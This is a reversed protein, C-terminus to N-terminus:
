KYIKQKLTATSTKFGKTEIDNNKNDENVIEAKIQIFLDRTNKIISEYKFFTGFIPMDGLVPVKYISNNVTTKKLGGIFVVGGDELTVISTLKNKQAAGLADEETADGLTNTSKSSLFSSVESTIELTIKDKEGDGDRIIPTVNLVTGAEKFLPETTTNGDSDTSSTTGVKLEASVNLNATKGNLTVVSPVANVSADDTQKLMNITSSIVNDTNGLYSTFTAIPNGTAVAIQGTIGSSVSDKDQYSWDIGLEQTLTGTIELIQATIRVQKIPKDLEKILNKATEINETSGKLIILNQDKVSIVELSNEDTMSTIVQKVEDAFAYKLTIKETFREGNKDKIIGLKKTNESSTSKEVVEILGKNEKSDVPNLYLNISLTKGQEIEVIDGNTEYNNAIGKIIYTGPNINEFIYAGGAESLVEKYVDNNKILVIKAGTIGLKDTSLVRGVIQGTTKEDSKLTQELIIINNVEKAQLNNAVMVADLIEKLNQGKVFYLDIMNDKVKSEAVITIGSTKSIISLADALKVNKFDLENPYIVRELRDM